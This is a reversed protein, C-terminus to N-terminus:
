RYEYLLLDFVETVSMIEDAEFYIKVAEPM